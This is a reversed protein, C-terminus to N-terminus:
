KIRGTLDDKHLTTKRSTTKRNGKTLKLKTVKAPLHLFVNVSLKYQAEINSNKLDVSVVELLCSGQFLQYSIHYELRLKFM